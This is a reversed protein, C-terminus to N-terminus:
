STLEEEAWERVEVPLDATELLEVLTHFLQGEDKLYDRAVSRLDIDPDVLAQRAVDLALDGGLEIALELSLAKVGFDLNQVTEKLRPHFRDMNYAELLRIATFVLRPDTDGLCRDLAAEIAPLEGSRAITELAKLRIDAEPHDLQSM